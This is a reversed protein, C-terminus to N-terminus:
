LLRPKRGRFYIEEFGFYAILGKAHLYDAALDGATHADSGITVYKGGLSQYISLLAKDPMAETLGKRLPSTNIELCINNQVLAACIKQIIEVSYLLTKYYRKPFDIHALCDFGGYQATALVENWYTQYCIEDSIGAEIMQSVFMNNHWYHVSGLMYDYPLRCYDSFEDPHLHPESFELGCLLEVKGSYKEKMETFKEFFATASYYGYGFDHVNFDIHETFCLARLGKDVAALCYAEMDEQSDCSFSTHLHTDCILSRQM